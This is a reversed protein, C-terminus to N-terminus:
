PGLFTVLIASLFFGIPMELLCLIQYRIIVDSEERDYGAKRQWMARQKEGFNGISMIFWISSNADWRSLKRRVLAINVSFATVVGALAGLFGIAVLENEHM